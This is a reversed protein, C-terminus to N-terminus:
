SHTLIVKLQTAKPKKIIEGDGMKLGKTALGDVLINMMVDRKFPGFTKGGWKDMDQHGKVWRMEVAIPLSEILTTTM